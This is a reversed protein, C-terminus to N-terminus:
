RFKHIEIGLRSTPNATHAMHPMMVTCISLKPKGKLGASINVRVAIEPKIPAVKRMGAEKKMRKLPPRFVMKKVVASKSMGIQLSGLGTPGKAYVSLIPFISAVITLLIRNM